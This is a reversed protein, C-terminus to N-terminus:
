AGYKEKLKEYAARESAEVQAEHAEKRKKAEEQRELLVRVEEAQPDTLFSFPIALCFVEGDYDTHELWADTGDVCDFEYNHVNFRANRATYTSDSDPYKLAVWREAFPQLAETISDRYENLERQLIAFTGLNATLENM